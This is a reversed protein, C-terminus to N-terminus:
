GRKGTVLKAGYHAAPLYIALDVWFWLPHPLMLLNILGFFMLIGGVILPVSANTKDILRSVAGGSLAGLLHALLVMLFAGMPRTAFVAKLGEPTSIDAGEPVPYIRGSTGEVITIVVFAVLIGTVVALLRRLFPSM